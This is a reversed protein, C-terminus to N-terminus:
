ENLITIPNVDNGNEWPTLRAEFHLHKGTSNGTNGMIGIKDGKNVYQGEAVLIGSLHAHIISYSGGDANIIIYNGWANPSAGKKEGSAIAVAVYGSRTALIDDDGSNSVLDIGTHYGKAYKARKEGYNLTVVPDNVPYSM